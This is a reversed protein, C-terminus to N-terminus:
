SSWYFILVFYFCTKRNLVRAPIFLFLYTQISTDNETLLNWVDNLFFIILNFITKIWYLYRFCIIFFFFMIVIFLFYLLIETFSCHHPHDITDLYKVCLFGFLISKYRYKEGKRWIFFFFQFIIELTLNNKCSLCLCNWRHTTTYKYVVGCYRCGQRRWAELSYAYIVLSSLLVARLL